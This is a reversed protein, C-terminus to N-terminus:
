QKKKFNMDLFSVFSYNDSFNKFNLFKIFNNERQSILQYGNQEM